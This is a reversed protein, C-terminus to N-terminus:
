SVATRVYIFLIRLEHGVWFSRVQESLHPPLWSLVADGPRFGNETLGIALAESYYHVHQLTWTRNKHEYRVVDMHPFDGTLAELQRGGSSSSSSAASALTRRSSSSSAGAAPSLSFRSAASGSATVGVAAGSRTTAVGRRSSAAAAAATRRILISGIMHYRLSSSSYCCYFFLFSLSRIVGQLLRTRDNGKSRRRQNSSQKAQSSQQSAPRDAKRRSGDDCRLRLPARRSRDISRNITMWLSTM